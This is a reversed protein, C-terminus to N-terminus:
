QEKAFRVHTPILAPNWNTAPKRPLVNGTGDTYIYAIFGTSSTAFAIDQGGSYTIFGSENGKNVEYDVYGPKPEEAKKRALHRWQNVDCIELYATNASLEGECTVYAEGEALEFTGDGDIKAAKGTYEWGDALTHRPPLQTLLSEHIRRYESTRIRLEVLEPIGDAYGLVPFADGSRIDAVWTGSEYRQPTESLDPLTWDPNIRYFTLDVPQNARCITNWDLTGHLLFQVAKVHENVCSLIKQKKEGLLIFPIPNGKEVSVSQLSKIAKVVSEATWNNDAMLKRLATQIPTM